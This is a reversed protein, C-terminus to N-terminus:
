RSKIFGMSDSVTCAIKVATAPVREPDDPILIKTNGRQITRGTFVDSAYTYAGLLSDGRVAFRFDFGTWELGWSIQISDRKILRWFSHMDHRRASLSDM